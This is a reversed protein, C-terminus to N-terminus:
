GLNAIMWGENISNRFAAKGMPINMIQKLSPDMALIESFLVVRADAELADEISFFQWDGDM